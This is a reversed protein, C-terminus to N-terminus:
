STSWDYLDVLPISYSPFIAWFSLLLASSSMLLSSSLSSEFSSISSISIASILPVRHSSTSLLCANSVVSCLERAMQLLRCSALWAFQHNRLLWSVIHLTSALFWLMALSYLSITALVTSSPSTSLLCSCVSWFHSYSSSSLSHSAM